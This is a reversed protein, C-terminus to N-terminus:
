IGLHGLAILSVCVIQMTNPSELRSLFPLASLHCCFLHSVNGVCLDDGRDQRIGFRQVSQRYGGQKSKPQGLTAFVRPILRDLLHDSLHQTCPYMPAGTVSIAVLGTGLIVLLEM